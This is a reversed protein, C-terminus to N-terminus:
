QYLLLALQEAVLAPKERDRIEVESHFTVLVGQSKEQAKIVKMHLRIDSGSPVPMLFRM